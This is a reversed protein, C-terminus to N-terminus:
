LEQVNLLVTLNCVCISISFIIKHFTCFNFVTAYSPWDLVTANAMSGCGFSGFVLATSISFLVIWKLLKAVVGLSM